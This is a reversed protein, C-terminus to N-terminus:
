GKRDVKASWITKKTDTAREEEVWYELGVRFKLEEAKVTFKSCHMAELRQTMVGTRCGWFYGAIRTEGNRWPVEFMYGPNKAGRGVYFLDEGTNNVLVFVHEKASTTLLQISIGEPFGQIAEIRSQSENSFDVKRKTSEPSDEM